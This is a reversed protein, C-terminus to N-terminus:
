DNETYLIQRVAQRWGDYLTARQAADMTPTYDGSAHALAALDDLSNYVGVGLLGSLAAGWASLEPVAATRVTLGTMDAVFQMLFTNQVMGGDAHILTLDVGASERMVDLVDRLRYAIAELGARVVHAKTAAPTLGLIGARANPAWYPASLGVFAPVLYVGGNDPVSAALDASAAPSDLVGLQDTLWAVIAGTFNTIGELAYTPQGNLAWAITTVLGNDTEQRQAGINLLVSSGTGFTIKGMGPTYCGQAFLATQSDGMVGQIPLPTDLLGELDTAGFSASSEYVSPLAHIPVGFLTCLEVSWALDNIDYLLTRCANTHDTAFVAGGTLRYVLYVDITGLLASGDNLRALLDPRERLLWAIKAAPFYTDIPLGTLRKVLDNHGADILEACIPEGRRCQWVIANYLPAGTEREFIVFTERQNTISLAALSPLKDRQRQVVEGLVALVNAYIEEANHEVWGPQPYHQQHPKAAKDLIAGATDFLLAKTGSTSQDLALITTM